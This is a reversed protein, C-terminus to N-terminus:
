YAKQQYRGVANEELKILHLGGYTEDWDFVALTFGVRFQAGWEFSAKISDRQVQAMAAWDQEPTDASMATVLFLVSLIRM